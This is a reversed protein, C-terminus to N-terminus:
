SPVEEDGASGGHHSEGVPSPGGNPDPSGGRMMARLMRKSLDAPSLGPAQALIEDLERGNCLEYLLTDLTRKPGDKALERVAEPTVHEILAGCVERQEPSSEGIVQSFCWRFFHRAPTMVTNSDCPPLLLEPALGYLFEREHTAVVLVVRDLPLAPFGTTLLFEVQSREAYRWPHGPIARMQHRWSSDVPVRDKAVLFVREAVRLPRLAAISRLHKCAIAIAERVESLDADVGDQVNECSFPM